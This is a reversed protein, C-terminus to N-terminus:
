TPSRTRTRRAVARGRRPQRYLAEVSAPRCGASSWTRIRPSARGHRRRVGCALEGILRMQASTLDGLVTAVTVMSWGAQKQPRVNTRAWDAIEQPAANVRPSSRRARHGPRDVARRHRARSSRPSRRRRRPGDAAAAEELPPQEPDFPLAAGGEARFAALEREFEAPFRGVRALKVLFKLRNRQKHKYDGLRHFVRIIPRPSTSCRAPRAPVRVARARRADDDGHRRRRHRPLRAAARRGATTARAGGASTTSRRPSTITRHLGRLRDQVQAAAVLQASPAAPLADAGRRVADRRVARRRRRRRVPVRHHQAGLQRVGRADDARGRRPAADGARCRAAQHLPAPHEPPHHHPRLRALLARRRGRAREAAAADLIGQPIKVRLMARRRDAAPRVHRAAAPLRAVRGARDRRERLPRADDVFEDIDAEDAFSLRARGLTERDETAAM